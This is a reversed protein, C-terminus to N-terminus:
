HIEYEEEIIKKIDVKTKIKRKPISVFNDVFERGSMKREKVDNLNEKTWSEIAYHTAKKISGKSYGFRKMALQRFKRELDRELDVKLSM